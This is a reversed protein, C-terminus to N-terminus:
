RFYWSKLQSQPVKHKKGWMEKKGQFYMEHMLDRGNYTARSYYSVSYEGKYNMRDITGESYITQQMLTEEHDLSDADEGKYLELVICENLYDKHENDESHKCRPANKVEKKYDKVAEELNDFTAITRYNTDSETEILFSLIFKTM